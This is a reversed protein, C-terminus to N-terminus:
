LCHVVGLNVDPLLSFLASLRGRSNGMCVYTIFKVNLPSHM